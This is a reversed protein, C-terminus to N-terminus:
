LDGHCHEFGFRDKGMVPPCWVVSCCQSFEPQRLGLLVWVPCGAGLRPVWCRGMEKCHCEGTRSAMGM